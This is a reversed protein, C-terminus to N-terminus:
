PCRFRSLFAEGNKLMITASYNGPGDFSYPISPNVLVSITSPAEGQTPTISIWPEGLVSPSSSVISATYAAPSSSISLTQPSLPLTTLDPRYIFSLQTPSAQLSVSGQADVLRALAVALVALKMLLRSLGSRYPERVEHLKKVGRPLMLWPRRQAQTVPCMKLKDMRTAHQGSDSLM